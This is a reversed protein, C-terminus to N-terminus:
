RRSNLQYLAAAARLGAAPLRAYHPLRLRISFALGTPTANEGPMETSTGIIVDGGLATVRLCGVHLTSHRPSFVPRFVLAVGGIAEAIDDSSILDCVTRTITPHRVDYQGRSHRIHKGLQAPPHADGWSTCARLMSLRLSVATLCWM